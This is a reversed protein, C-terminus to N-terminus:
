GAELPELLAPGNNRVANVAKAVPWFTVADDPAPRLLTAPDAEALGETEGLWAPWTAPALIVPMRDHLGALTANASTTLIAFSRLVAGDPGRWGEWIGAFAMPARDPRAIAYPQKAGEPGYWEYFADVPVLCRRRAFADRFLSSSAVGESRANIPRRDKLSKAWRPLFGWSLLDLHRLGTEPHRRVVPLDQTPAANWTAEINPPPNGTAFLARLADAASTIVYRGCM